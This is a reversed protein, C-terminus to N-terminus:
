DDRRGDGGHLMHEVSTILWVDILVRDTRLLYYVRLLDDVGYTLPLYLPRVEYGLTRGADDRIATVRSRSFSSSCAVFHRAMELAEAAPIGEGVRFKFDPAYPEFVFEDGERDLFAITEPDDLYGCGFLIVRFTGSTIGEERVAVTSLRSGAACSALACFLAAICCSRILWMM